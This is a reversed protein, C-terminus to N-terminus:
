RQSGHFPGSQAKVIREIGVALEDRVTAAASAVGGLSAMILRGSGVLGNRPDDLRRHHPSQKGFIGHAAGEQAGQTRGGREGGDRLEEREAGRRLHERLSGRRLLLVELDAEDGDGAGRGDDPWCCLWGM